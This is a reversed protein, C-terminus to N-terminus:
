VAIKHDKKAQAQALADSAVALLAAPSDIAKGPTTAVGFVISVCDEELEPCMHTGLTKRSREAIQGSGQESM